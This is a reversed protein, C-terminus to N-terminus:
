LITHYAHTQFLTGGFGYVIYDGTGAESVGSM